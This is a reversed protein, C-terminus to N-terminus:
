KIGSNLYIYIAIEPQAVKKLVLLKNIQTYAPLKEVRPIIPQIGRKMIPKNSCPAVPLQSICKLYAKPSPSPSPATKPILDIFNFLLSYNL